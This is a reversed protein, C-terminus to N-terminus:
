SMDVICVEDDDDSGDYIPIENNLKKMSVKKDNAENLEEEEVYIV